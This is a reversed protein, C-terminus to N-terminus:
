NMNLKSEEKRVAEQIMKIAEICQEKTIEKYKKNCKIHEYIQEADCEYPL